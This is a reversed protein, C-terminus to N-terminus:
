HCASPSPNYSTCYGFLVSAFSRARMTASGLPTKVYRPIRGVAYGIGSSPGIPSKRRAIPRKGCRDDCMCKRSVAGPYSSYTNSHLESQYYSLLILFSICGCPARLLPCSARLIPFQQCRPDIVMIAIALLIRQETKPQIASLPSEIAICTCARTM